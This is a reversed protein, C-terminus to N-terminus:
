PSPMVRFFCGAEGAAFPGWTGVAHVVRVPGSEPVLTVRFDYDTYAGSSDSRDALQGEATAEVDDVVRGSMPTRDEDRSWGIEDCPSSNVSARSAVGEGYGTVVICRAPDDSATVYLTSAISATPPMCVRVDAAAISADRSFACSTLALLTITLSAIRCTTM